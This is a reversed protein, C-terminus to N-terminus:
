PALRDDGVEFPSNGGGDKFTGTNALASCVSGHDLDFTPDPSTVM